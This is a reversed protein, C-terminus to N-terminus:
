NEPVPDVDSFDDAQFNPVAQFNRGQAKAFELQVSRVADFFRKNKPDIGWGQEFTSM